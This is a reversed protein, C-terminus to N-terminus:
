VGDAIEKRGRDGGARDSAPSFPRCTVRRAQRPCVWSPHHAARRHARAVPHSPRGGVATRVVRTLFAMRLASRPVPRDPPSRSRASWVASHSPSLEHWYAPSAGEPSLSGHVPASTRSRRGARPQGACWSNRLGLAVFTMRRVGDGVPEGTPGAKGRHLREQGGAAALGPPPLRLARGRLGHVRVVQELLAPDPVDHCTCRLEERAGALALM